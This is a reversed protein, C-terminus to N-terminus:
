DDCMDLGGADTPHLMQLAFVAAEVSGTGNRSM